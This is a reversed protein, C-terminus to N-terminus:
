ISFTLWSVFFIFWNKKSSLQENVKHLANMKWLHEFINQIKTRTVLTEKLHYTEKKSTIPRMWEHVNLLDILNILFIQKVTTRKVQSAILLKLGTRKKLRSGWPWRPLSLKEWIDMVANYSNNQTIIVANMRRCIPCLIRTVLNPELFWCWTPGSSAVKWICSQHRWGSLWEEWLSNNCSYTLKMWVLPAKLVWDFM